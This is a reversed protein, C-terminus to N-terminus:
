LLTFTAIAGIAATCLYVSFLISIHRDKQMLGIHIWLSNGIIWCCFGALRSITSPYAVLVAGTISLATAPTKISTM